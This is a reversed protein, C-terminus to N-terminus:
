TDTSIIRSSRVASTLDLPMPLHVIPSIPSSPRTL